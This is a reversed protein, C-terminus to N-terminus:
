PPPLAINNNKDSALSCKGGLLTVDQGILIEVGRPVKTLMDRWGEEWNLNVKRRSVSNEEWVTAARDM